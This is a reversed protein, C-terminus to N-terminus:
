FYGNDDKKIKADTESAAQIKQSGTNEAAMLM